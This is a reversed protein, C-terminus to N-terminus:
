LGRPRPVPPRGGSEPPAGQVKARAVRDAPLKYTAAQVLEEPM